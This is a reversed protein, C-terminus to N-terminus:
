LPTPGQEPQTQVPRGWRRAVSFGVRLDVRRTHTLPVDTHVLLQWPGTDLQAVPGLTLYSAPTDGVSRTFDTRLGVRAAGLRTGGAWSLEARALAEHDTHPNVTAEPATGHDHAGEAPHEHTEHTHGLGEVWGVRVGAHLPGLPVDARLYPLLAWHEGGLAEDTRTPAEVQLGVGLGEPGPLRSDLTLVTSGLGVRDADPTHLWVLPASLQAGLPGLRVGAGLFTETYAGAGSTGPIATFRQYVRGVWRGQGPDVPCQDMSCCAHAPAVLLHLLLTFM